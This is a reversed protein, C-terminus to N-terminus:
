SQSAAGRRPHPAQEGLILAVPARKTDARSEGGQPQEHFGLSSSGSASFGQQIKAKKKKKKKLGGPSPHGSRGPNVTRPRGLGGRTPPPQAREPPQLDPLPGPEPWTRPHPNRSRGTFLHTFDARGPGLFPQVLPVALHVIKAPPQGKPQLFPHWLQPPNRQCPRDLSDSGTAV